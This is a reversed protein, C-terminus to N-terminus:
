GQGSGTLMCGFERPCLTKVGKRCQSCSVAVPRDAQLDEWDPSHTIVEAGLSEAAERTWTLASFKRNLIAFAM